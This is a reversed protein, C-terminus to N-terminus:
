CASGLSSKIEQAIVESRFPKADSLLCHIIENFTRDPKILFSQPVKRSWGARPTRLASPLISVYRSVGNELDDRTHCPTM